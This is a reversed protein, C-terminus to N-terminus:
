AGTTESDDVLEYEVEIMDAVLEQVGKEILDDITPQPLNFIWDQIHHEGTRQVTSQGVLSVRVILKM